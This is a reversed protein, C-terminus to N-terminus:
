KLWKLFNILSINGCRKVEVLGRNEDYTLYLTTPLSTVKLSKAFEKNVDFDLEYYKNYNSKILNKVNENNLVNKHFTQCPGCWTASFNIIIKDGPKALEDAFLNGSFLLLILIFLYKM